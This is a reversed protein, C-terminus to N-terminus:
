STPLNGLLAAILPAPDGPEAFDASDLVVWYGHSFVQIEGIKGITKFFAGDVAPPTGYTPVTNSSGAADGLLLTYNATAPRAVGIEILANSSANSWGCAIGAQHDVLQAQLSGSAPKYGADPAFGDAVSPLQAPTLLEDCRM